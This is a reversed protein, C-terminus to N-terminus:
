LLTAVGVPQLHASAGSASFDLYGYYAVGAAGTAISTHTLGAIGDDIVQVSLVLECITGEPCSIIEILTNNTVTTSIWQGAGSTRSPKASVYAPENTAVSIASHQVPRSWGTIPGGAFSFGVGAVVAGAPSVPGWMSFKEIRFAAWLGRNATGGSNNIFLTQFIDNSLINGSFGTQASYLLNVRTVPSMMPKPVPVLPKAIVTLNKLSKKLDNAKKM